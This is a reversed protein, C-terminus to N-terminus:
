AAVAVRSNLGVRGSLLRLVAIATEKPTVDSWAEVHRQFDELSEGEASEGDVRVRTGLQVLAAWSLNSPIRPDGSVACNLAGVVSMPRQHVPSQLRRSYPDEVLDGRHIGYLSTLKAAGAFVDRVDATRQSM